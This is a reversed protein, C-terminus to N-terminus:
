AFDKQKLEPMTPISNLIQVALDVVMKYAPLVIILDM